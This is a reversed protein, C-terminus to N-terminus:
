AAKKPDNVKIGRKNLEAADPPMGMESIIQVLKLLQATSLQKDALEPVIRVITATLSDILKTIADDDLSSAEELKQGLIGLRLFDATKPPNVQIEAGDLKIRAPQPAALADLDVLQQDTDSM